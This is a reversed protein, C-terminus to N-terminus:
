WVLFRVQPEAALADDGLVNGVIATDMVNYFQQFINGLLIPLSFLLILKIPRGETMDLDMSRKM